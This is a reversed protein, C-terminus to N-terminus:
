FRDLSAAENPDATEEAEAVAPPERQLCPVINLDPAVRDSALELADV